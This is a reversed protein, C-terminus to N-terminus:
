QEVAKGEALATLREAVDTLVQAARTNKRDLSKQALDLQLRAAQAFADIKPNQPRVAALRVQLTAVRDQTQKTAAARGAAREAAATGAWVPSSVALLAAVALAGTASRTITLM